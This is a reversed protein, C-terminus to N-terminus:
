LSLLLQHTPDKTLQWSMFRSDVTKCALQNCTVVHWHLVIHQVSSGKFHPCAIQTFSEPLCSHVRPVQVLTESPGIFLVYAIPTLMDVTM